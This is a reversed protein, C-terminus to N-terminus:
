KKNRKMFLTGLLSSILGLGLVTSTATGGTIPLKGNPKVQQHKEGNKDGDEEGKNEDNGPNEIILKNVIITNNELTTKFDRDNKDIINLGNIVNVEGEKIKSKLTLLIKTKDKAEGESELDELNINIKDGEISSSTINTNKDVSEVKVVEFADNNYNINVEYKESKLSEIDSINVKAKFEDGSIVEKPIEIKAIGKETLNTIGFGYEYVNKELSFAGNELVPIAVPLVGEADAGGFIVEMAAPINPGFAETPTLGGDVETPDMGKYGYAILQTKANSYIGADYPKGVSVAIAEKNLKNAYDIVESPTKTLWHTPALHSVNGMETLIVVYNAKDIKAKLEDSIESEKNYSHTNINISNMKGESILRNIGFKMGPLENNYPALLLVNEGEKAKIPLIDKENKVVTIAESSIRREINRNEESGVIKKANNIKEEVTRNDEKINMIGRDIKLKVIREVSDNIEDISIEGNNVADIVGNIIGDLKGLDENSRLITPMLVIDVGSNIALKTAELEGFNKSIADMNMADTIVVGNYGMDKRLLGEIIDDSLTAPLEIESGDAKSIYKDKEIQPFQIHATMIMDVGNDVADKFPKLENVRLEDISKDVRPLGTHSDTAVDGHGPFHKAAASVGQDQIGNIINVGLKGVLEPNSSISRLGIVPNNPNNNVDLSPAFNVNIGLSNLERGIVYGADYANKESRTAGLAMNGPLNTGTGLRTVIGGEQDITILLPLNGDKDNIAVNQLDHVLKTTQETTKVNPAFLIVGGLDYRDIINSVEENIETFDKAKEEGELKWQRFDPMLMQGVKEELTMNSVIKEVENLTDKASVGMGLMISNTVMAATLISIIKGKKM